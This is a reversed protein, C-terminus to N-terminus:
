ATCVPTSSSARVTISRKPAEVAEQVAQSERERENKRLDIRLSRRDSLECFQKLTVLLRSDLPASYKHKSCFVKKSQLFICGARVACAFHYNSWGVRNNCGVTAGGMQCYACISGVRGRNVQLYIVNLITRWCLVALSVAKFVDSLVGREHEYVEDSWVACNAHLWGDIGAYLLMGEALRDGFSKCLLCRRKDNDNGPKTQSLISKLENTVDCRQVSQPSEVPVDSQTRRYAKADDIDTDNHPTNHLDTLLEAAFAQEPEVKKQRVQPICNATAVQSNSVSPSPTPNTTSDSNHVVQMMRSGLLSSPDVPLDPPANLGINVQGYFYQNHQGPPTLKRAVASAFEHRPNTYQVPMQLQLPQPPPQMAESRQVNMRMQMQM